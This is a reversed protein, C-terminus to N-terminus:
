IRASNFYRRVEASSWRELPDCAGCAVVVDYWAHTEPLEPRLKGIPVLERLSDKAHTYPTAQTHVVGCGM